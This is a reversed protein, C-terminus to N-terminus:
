PNYMDAGGAKQAKPAEGKGKAPTASGDVPALNRKDAPNGIKM